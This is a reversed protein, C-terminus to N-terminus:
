IMWEDRSRKRRQQSGSPSPSIQTQVNAPRNEPTLYSGKDNLPPATKKARAALPIDDESSSMNHSESSHIFLFAISFLPFLSSKKKPPTTSSQPELFKRPHNISNASTLREQSPSGNYATCWVNLFKNCDPESNKRWQRKRQELSCVDAV